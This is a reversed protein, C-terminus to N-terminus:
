TIGAGMPSTRGSAPQRRWTSTGTFPDPRRQATGGSLCAAGASDSAWFSSAERQGLVLAIRAKEDDSSLDNPDPEAFRGPDELRAQDSIRRWREKEWNMGGM